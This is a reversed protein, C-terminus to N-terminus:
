GKSELPKLTQRIASIVGHGNHEEAIVNIIFAMRNRVIKHRRGEEIM